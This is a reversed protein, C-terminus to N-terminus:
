EDLLGLVRIMANAVLAKKGDERSLGEPVGVEYAFPEKGRLLIGIYATGPVSGEPNAPDVRTLSGTIGVTVDSGTRVYGAWAMKKATERSYVGHDEIVRAAVGLKIKAVNSYTIFGEHFVESSGSVNTIENALAGGTCSEVTTITMGKLRLNRVLQAAIHQAPM